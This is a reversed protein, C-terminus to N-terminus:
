DAFDTTEFGSNLNFPRESNGSMAANVGEAEGRCVGLPLARPDVIHIIQSEIENHACCVSTECKVPKGRQSKGKDAHTGDRAACCIRLHALLPREIVCEGTGFAQQRSCICFDVFREVEVAAVRERRQAFVHDCRLGCRKLKLAVRLVLRSL